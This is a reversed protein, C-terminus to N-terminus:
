LTDDAFMFVLSSNVSEPLDNMDSFHQIVRLTQKFVLNYLPVGLMLSYQHLLKIWVEKKVFLFGNFPSCM